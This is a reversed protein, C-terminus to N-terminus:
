HKLCSEKKIPIWLLYPRLRIRLIHAFGNVIKLIPFFSLFYFLGLDDYIYKDVKFNRCISM